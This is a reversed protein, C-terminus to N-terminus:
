FTKKKKLTHKLDGGGESHNSKFFSITKQLDERVGIGRM